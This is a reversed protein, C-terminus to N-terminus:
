ETPFSEMCLQYVDQAIYECPLVGDADREWCRKAKFYRHKSLWFKAHLGDLTPFAHKNLEPYKQHACKAKNVIRTLEAWCVFELFTDENPLYRIAQPCPMCDVTKFTHLASAVVDKWDPVQGDLSRATWEKDLADAVNDKLIRLQLTALQEQSKIPVYHNSDPYELTMEQAVETHLNGFIAKKDFVLRDNPMREFLPKYCTPCTGKDQDEVRIHKLLCEEHFHHHCQNLRLTRM